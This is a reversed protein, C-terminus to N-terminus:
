GHRRPDPQDVLDLFRRAATAAEDSLRAPLVVRTRVYLDGSGDGKLDPMGQGALRFRRGNQTGSPIRLMVRGKLTGVAVESGLLAEELTIPLERELDRGHRTFVADPAMRVIVVVDSGDPAQGSLRTRSGASVGRPIKVELRRGGVELLRTTGRFAEQLTIEAETEVARRSAPRTGGTGHGRGQGGGMAGLIDELDPARGSGRGTARGTASQFGEM